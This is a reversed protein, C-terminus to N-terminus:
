SLTVFFAADLALVALDLVVEKARYSASLRQFREVFRQKSETALIALLADDASEGNRLPEIHLPGRESWKRRDRRAWADVFM